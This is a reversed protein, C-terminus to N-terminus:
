FQLFPLKQVELNELISKVYIRFSLFNRFNWFYNSKLFQLYMLTTIIPIKQWESKAHFWHQFDLLELVAMKGNKPSQVKTNQFFTLRWFTCFTCFNFFFFFWIESGRFTNLHCFKGRRSGWFNIERLIQTICFNRFEISHM